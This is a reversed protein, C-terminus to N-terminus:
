PHARSPKAAPWPRSPQRGASRQGALGQVTRCPGPLRRAARHKQERPPAGRLTPLPRAATHAPPRGALSIRPRSWPRHLCDLVRHQQQQRQQQCRCSVVFLKSPPRLPSESPLWGALGALTGIHVRILRRFVLIFKTWTRVGEELQEERDRMRPRPQSHQNGRPRPKSRVHAIGLRTRITPRRICAQGAQLREKARRERLM